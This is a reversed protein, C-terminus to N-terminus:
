SIETGQCPPRMELRAFSVWFHGSEGKGGKDTADDGGQRHGDAADNVDRPAVRELALDRPREGASGAAHLLQEGVGGGGPAELGAGQLVSIVVSAKAS